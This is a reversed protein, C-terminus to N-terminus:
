TVSVRAVNMKKKEARCFRYKLLQNLFVDKTDNLTVYTFLSRPFFFTNLLNNIISKKKKFDFIFYWGNYIISLLLNTISLM